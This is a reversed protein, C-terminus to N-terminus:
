RDHPHHERNAVFWGFACAGAFVTCGLAAGVRDFAEFFADFNNSILTSGLLYVPEGTTCGVFREGGRFTVIGAHFLLVLLWPWAFRVVAATGGAVAITAGAAYLLRALRHLRAVGTEVVGSREFSGCVTDTRGVHSEIDHM